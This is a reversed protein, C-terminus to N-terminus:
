YLAGRQIMAPLEGLTRRVGILKSSRSDSGFSVGYWTTWVGADRRPFCFVKAFQVDFRKRAQAELSEITAQTLWDPKTDAHTM